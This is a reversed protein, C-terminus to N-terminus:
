LEIPLKEWEVIKGLLMLDNLSKFWEHIIYTSGLITEGFSDKHLHYDGVYLFVYYVRLHDWM